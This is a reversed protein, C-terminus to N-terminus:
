HASEGIITSWSLRPPLLGDLRVILGFTKRSPLAARDIVGLDRVLIISVIITRGIYEYGKHTHGPRTFTAENREAALFGRFDSM